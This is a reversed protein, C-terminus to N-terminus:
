LLWQTLLVGLFSKCAAGRKEEKSNRERELKISGPSYALLNVDWMDMDKLLKEM